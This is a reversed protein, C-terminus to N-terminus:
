PSLPHIYKEFWGMMRTYFDINHKIERFGHPERPYLVLETPVHYFRLGRYLEQSQGIPDTKDNEGQIILTPTKANKMFTIPSHKSFNDANEYPTGFFWRDYAMNSETGFESALSALGAGSMAAKFRNTQTIAWEAMFGGYSWGSIGIRNSDINEKAILIDVGAMIDKFDNGGWDNRNATLFKWGYGTSGRINPCFVAYGKQVFLQVWASYNDVFAGTPGGHIFVVLPLPKNGNTAPKYLSAEISLGDFSKYTIFRPAVLPINDFVKNFHSVQIPKKDTGMLWLESLKNGSYSEFVITGNGAIDFAGVQQSIGYDSAEGNDSISYLKVAFGKQVLALLHHNDTFKSFRVPLDLSKSTINKAIGNKVPQIFLDQADPGDEPSSNYTINNGDPSINIQGWFAHSPCPLNSLSSDKLSLLSLQYVPIEAAPLLQTLLLISNGSPMWKMEEIEINQKSVQVASKSNVDIIFLRTPKDSESVVTEDYKDATRKEEAATPPDETLYAITKGAPDWAYASIATKSKTLPSAEGGDGNMMFIQPIGNRASLFSLMRGDPSWQPESESKASSTFQRITKSAVDVMWIHSSPLNEGLGSQAVVVAAKSGDPSFVPTRISYRSLSQEISLTDKKTQSYCVISVLLSVPILFFPHFSKM